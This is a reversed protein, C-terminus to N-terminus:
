PSVCAFTKRQVDNINFHLLGRAPAHDQLPQLFAAGTEAAALLTDARALLPLSGFEEGARLYERAVDTYTKCTHVLRQLRGVAASRELVRHRASYNAGELQRTAAARRLDPLAARWAHELMARYAVPRTADRTLEQELYALAATSSRESGFKLHWSILDQTILSFRGCGGAEMIRRFSPAVPETEINRTENNRPAWHTGIALCETAEEPATSPQAGAMGAMGAAGALCLLSAVLLRVM